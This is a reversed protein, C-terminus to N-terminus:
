VFLGFYMCNKYSPKIYAAIKYLQVDHSNKLKNKLNFLYKISYFNGILLWQRDM